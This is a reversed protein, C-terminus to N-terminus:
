AAEQYWAQRRYCDLTQPDDPLYSIMWASNEVLVHTTMARLTLKGLRSHQMCVQLSTVPEWSLPRTAALRSFDPLAQLREWVAKYEPLHALAQTRLCFDNVLRQAVQEFGLLRQRVSPAFLAELAHCASGNAVTAPLEFLLRAAENCTSVFWFRDLTHTPYTTGRVFTEILVNPDLFMEDDPEGEIWQGTLLTFACYLQHREQAGLTLARALRQVAQRSPNSRQGQELHYLYVRSLQSARALQERSLGRQKRFSALLTAFDDDNCGLTGARAISSAAQAIM